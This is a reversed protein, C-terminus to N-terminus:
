FGKMRSEQKAEKGRNGIRRRKEGEKVIV